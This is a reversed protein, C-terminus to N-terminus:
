DRFSKRKEKMQKRREKMKKKRDTNIQEFLKIQEKSLIKRIARNKKSDLGRMISKPGWVGGMAMGMSRGGGRNGRGMIVGDEDPRMDEPLMEDIKNYYRILIGEVTFAQDDTLVLGENLTFFERDFASMKRTRKFEEKQLPSLLAEIALHAEKRRTFAADILSLANKKFTERDKLAQDRAKQLIERVEATQTENLKLDKELKMVKQSLPDAPQAQQEEAFLSVSFMIVVILLIDLLLDVVITRKKM